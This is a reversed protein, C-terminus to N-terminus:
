DGYRLMEVFDPGLTLRSCVSEFIRSCLGSFTRGGGVLALYTSDNCITDLFHETRFMSESSQLMTSLAQRKKPLPLEERHNQTQADMEQAAAAGQLDAVRFNRGNTFM